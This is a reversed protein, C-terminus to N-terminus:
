DISEISRLKDFYKGFLNRFVYRLIVILFLIAALFIEAFLQEGIIQKTLIIEPDKKIIDKINSPYNYASWKAIIDGQYIYTLGRNSRNLTLVNKYDSYLINLHPITSFIEQTRQPSIGSVIYLEGGNQKIINELITINNLRKASLKKDKYITIFFIPKDTNLVQEGIYEGNINKLVFDNKAKKNQDVNVLTTKSDIFQWTTDPLNELTFEENHGDKSYIFITHYEQEQYQEYEMINTGPKYEGFDIQPLIILSYISVFGIILTYIGIFLREIFESGVPKFNDRQYYLVIACALLILNKFFTEWNTLHIAEGFCGCDSVPNFIASYFTLITFFIMFILAFLTFTKMRLGKLIAVGIIFEFIAFIVGAPISLFDFWGLHFSILYEKIKLGSGIPDIAKLFGSLIFVLGLIIRCLARLLGM